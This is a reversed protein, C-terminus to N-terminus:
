GAHGRHEEAGSEIVEPDALQQLREDLQRRGGSRARGLLAGDGRDLIPEAPEHELDLRVHVRLVAVADREQAHGRSAIAPAHADAVHAGALVHLRRVGDGEHRAVAVPHVIRVRAVDDPKGLWPVM